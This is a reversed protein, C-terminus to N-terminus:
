ALERYTKVYFRGPLNSARWGSPKKAACFRISTPAHLRPCVVSWETRRKYVAGVVKQPGYACSTGYGWNMHWTMINKAELNGRLALLEVWFNQFEHVVPLDVSSMQTRFLFTERFKTVGLGQQTKRPTPLGFCNLFLQKKRLSSGSSEFLPSAPRSFCLAHGRFVFGQECYRRFPKSIGTNMLTKRLAKDVSRSQWVTDAGKNPAACHESECGRKRVALCRSAISDGCIKPLTSRANSLELLAVDRPATNRRFFARLARETAKKTAIDAARAPACVVEVM